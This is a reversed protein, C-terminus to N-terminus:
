DSKLRRKTEISLCHIFYSRANGWGPKKAESSQITILQENTLSALQKAFGYKAEVDEMPTIRETTQDALSSM